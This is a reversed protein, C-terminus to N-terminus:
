AQRFYSNNIAVLGLSFSFLKNWKIEIVLLLSKNMTTVKRHQPWQFQWVDHCVFYSHSVIYSFEDIIRIKCLSLILKPFNKKQLYYPVSYSNKQNKQLLALHWSVQSYNVTTSSILFQVCYSIECSERASHIIWDTNSNQSISTIGLMCVFSSLKKAAM